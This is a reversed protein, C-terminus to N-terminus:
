DDALLVLIVVIFGLIHTVHHSRWHLGLRLHAHWPIKEHHSNGLLLILQRDLVFVVHRDRSSVLM